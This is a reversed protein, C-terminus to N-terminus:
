QRFPILLVNLGGIWLSTPLRQHMSRAAATARCDVPLLRRAMCVGMHHPRDRLIPSCHVSRASSVLELVCRWAAAVVAAWCVVPRAVAIEPLQQREDPQVFRAGLGQPQELAADDDTSLRCAHLPAGLGTAAASPSHAHFALGVRRGLLRAHVQTGAGSTSRQEAAQLGQGLRQKAAPRLM